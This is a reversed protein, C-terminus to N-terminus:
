IARLVTRAPSPCLPLSPLLLPSPATTPSPPPPPFSPRPQSCTHGAIATEVALVLDEDEKEAALFARRHVTLLGVAVCVVRIRSSSCPKNCAPTGPEKAIVSEVIMDSSTKEEVM